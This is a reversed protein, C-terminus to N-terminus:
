NGPSLRTALQEAEGYLQFSFVQGRLRLVLERGSKTLVPDVASLSVSQIRTKPICTCTSAHVAEFSSRHPKGSTLFVWDTDTELVLIGLGRRRRGRNDSCRIGPEECYVLKCHPERRQHEQMLNRFSDDAPLSTTPNTSEPTQGAPQGKWRKRLFDMAHEIVQRSVANYRITLTAGSSQFLSFEGALLAHHNRLAQLEALAIVQKDVEQGILTLLCIQQENIALIQRYLDQGPRATRREKDVPFKLVIASAALQGYWPRFRVPMDAENKIEYIWPGFADYERREESSAQAYWDSTAKVNPRHKFLSM